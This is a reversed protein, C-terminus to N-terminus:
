FGLLIIILVLLQYRVFRWADSFFPRNLDPYRGFGASKSGAMYRLM